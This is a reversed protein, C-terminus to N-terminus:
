CTASRTAAASGIRSTACAGRHRRGGGRLAGTRVGDIARVLPLGVDRSMAANSDSGRPRRACRRRRGRRAGRERGTAVFAMMAHLDNFAYFGPEGRELRAQWDDAVGNWRDGVDGGELGIRWLLATADILSLTFAAPEPHVHRDFLDLAGAVDGGDLHFLALHWFNHFAFGNDPAWDRERALRALRHGRRHPGADGDRAHRRAGGLRRAARHRARAAGTEEAERM